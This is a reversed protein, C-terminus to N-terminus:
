LLLLLYNNLSWLRWLSWRRKWSWGSWWTFWIANNAEPIFVDDTDNPFVDDNTEFIEEDLPIAHPSVTMQWSGWSRELTKQCLMLSDLFFIIGDSLFVPVCISMEEIIVFYEKLNIALSYINSVFSELDESATELSLAADEVDLVHHCLLSKDCHSNVEYLVVHSLNDLNHKIGMQLHLVLNLTIFQHMQEKNILVLDIIKLLCTCLELSCCGLLNLSDLSNHILSYFDDFCTILRLFDELLDNDNLSALVGFGRIERGGMRVDNFDM